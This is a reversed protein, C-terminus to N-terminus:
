SVCRERKGACRTGEQRMWGFRWRKGTWGVSERGAPVVRDDM